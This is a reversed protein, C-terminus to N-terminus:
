DLLPHDALPLRHVCFRRGHEVLTEHYLEQHVTRVRSRPDAGAVPIAFWDTFGLSYKKGVGFIRVLHREIADDCLKPDRLLRHAWQLKQRTSPSSEIRQVWTGWSPVVRWLIDYHHSCVRPVIARPAVCTFDLEKLSGGLYYHPMNWIAVPYTNNM